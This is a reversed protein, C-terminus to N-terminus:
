CDYSRQQNRDIVDFWDRRPDSAPLDGLPDHPWIAVPREYCADLFVFKSSSNFPMSPSERVLTTKAVPCVSAHVPRGRSLQQLIWCPTPSARRLHCPSCWPYREHQVCARRFSQPGPRHNPTRRRHAGSRPWPAPVATSSSAAHKRLEQDKTTPLGLGPHKPSNRSVCWLMLCTHGYM